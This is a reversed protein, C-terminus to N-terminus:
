KIFKKKKKLWSLSYSTIQHSFATTIRQVHHKEKTYFFGVWGGGFCVFWYCRIPKIIVMEGPREAKFDLLFLNIHKNRGKYKM